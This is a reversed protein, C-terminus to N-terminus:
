MHFASACRFRFVQHLNPHPLTRLFFFLEFEVEACNHSNYVNILPSRFCFSYLACVELHYCAHAVYTLVSMCAFM